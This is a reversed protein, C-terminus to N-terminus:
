WFNGFFQGYVQQSGGQRKISCNAVNGNPWQYNITQPVTPGPTWKASGIYGCLFGECPPSMRWLTGQWLNGQVNGVVRFTTDVGSFVASFRCEAAGSGPSATVGKCTIPRNPNRLPMSMCAVTDVITNQGIQDWTSILNGAQTQAEHPLLIACACAFMSLLTKKM